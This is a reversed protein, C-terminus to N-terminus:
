LGALASQLLPELRGLGPQLRFRVFKQLHVLAHSRQLSLQRGRRLAKPSWASRRHVVGHRM